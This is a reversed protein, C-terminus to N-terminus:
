VMFPLAAAVADMELYEWAYINISSANLILWPLSICAAHGTYFSKGKPFDESLQHNGYQCCMVMKPKQILQLQAQSLKGVKSLLLM